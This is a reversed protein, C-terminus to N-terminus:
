RCSVIRRFRQFANAGLDSAALELGRDFGELRAAVILLVYPTTYM